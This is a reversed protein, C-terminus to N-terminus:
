QDGTKRDQNNQGYKHKEHTLHLATATATTARHTKTFGFCAQKAFILDLRGEHIDSSTVLRLFVNLLQDIEQLIRALELLEATTNGTTDQHRTRGTRTLRQQCFGNGTFGLNWEECDGTRIEDFHEHTYTRAADSIHKLLSLLLGGANDKNVFDICYTSLTASSQTPTM